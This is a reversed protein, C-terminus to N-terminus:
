SAKCHSDLFDAVLRGALEAGADGGLEHGGDVVAVRVPGAARAVFRYLAAPECLRDQEGAVFLLPRAEREIGPYPGDATGEPPTCIPTLLVAGRLEPEEALMQWALVSGLSKGGVWIRRPGVRPDKRVLALMTRLDAAEAGSASWDFRFVAVGRPPVQSAVQACIPMQMHYRQGPAFILAPFPGDGAPFDVVHNIM